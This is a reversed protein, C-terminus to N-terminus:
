RAFSRSRLVLASGLLLLGMGAAVLPASDSGTRALTGSRVTTARNTRNTSAPSVPAKPEKSPSLVAGPAESIPAVAGPQSTSPGPVDVGTTTTQEVDTALVGDPETTTTAQETTTTQEVVTPLVVVQETTTAAQETTTTAQNPGTCVHSLNFVLQTGNVQAVASVLTNPGSTSVYAHKPTPSSTFTTVVGANQFTAKVAVFSTSTGPLM